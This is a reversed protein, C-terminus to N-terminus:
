FFRVLGEFAADAIQIGAYTRELEHPDFLGGNLYPVSGLLKDLEERRPSAASVSVYSLWYLVIFM